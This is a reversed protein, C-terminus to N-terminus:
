RSEMSDILQDREILLAEDKPTVKLAENYADIASDAEGVRQFVRALARWDDVSAGGTKMTEFRRLAMSQLFEAQEAVNLARFREIAESSLAPLLSSSSIPSGEGSLSFIRSNVDTVRPHDPGAYLLFDRFHELAINSNGIAAQSIGLYYLAGLTSSDFKLASEFILSAEQSVGGSQSEVLSEGAAGYFSAKDEPLNTLNAASLYAESAESFAGQIRLAVAVNVWSDIDQSDVSKLGQFARLTMNREPSVDDFTPSNGNSNPAYRPEGISLYSPVAVIVMLFFGVRFPGRDIVKLRGRWFVFSVFVTFSFLVIAQM